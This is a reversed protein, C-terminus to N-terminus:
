FKDYNLIYISFIVIIALIFLFNNRKTISNIKDFKPDNSAFWIAKDGMTEKGVLKGFEFAYFSDTLLTTAMTLAYIIYFWSISSKPSLAWFNYPGFILYITFCLILTASSINFFVGHKTRWNKSIYM